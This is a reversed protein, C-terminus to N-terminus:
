GHSLSSMRVLFLSVTQPFFVRVQLECVSAQPVMRPLTLMLIYTVVTPWSGSCTTRTLKGNWKVSGHFILLLLCLTPDRQFISFVASVYDSAISVTEFDDEM